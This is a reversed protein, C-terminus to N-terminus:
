HPTGERDLALDYRQMISTYRQDVYHRMHELDITVFERDKMVVRGDVIVTRM